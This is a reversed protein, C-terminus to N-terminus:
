FSYFIRVIVSVLNVSFDILDKPLLYLALLLNIVDVFCKVRSFPPIIDFRVQNFAREVFATEVNENFVFFLKLFDVIFEYRM